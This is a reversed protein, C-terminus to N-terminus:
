AGMTGLMSSSTIYARDPGVGPDSPSDREWGINDNVPETLAGEGIGGIAFYEAPFSSTDDTFIQYAYIYRGTGPATFGDIGIFEDPNTV